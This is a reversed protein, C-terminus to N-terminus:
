FCLSCNLKCTQIDHGNFRLDGFGIDGTNGGPLFGTESDKRIPCVSYHSAALYNM